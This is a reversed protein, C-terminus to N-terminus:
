LFQLSGITSLTTIYRLHLFHRFLFHIQWWVLAMLNQNHTESKRRGLGKGGSLVIFDTIENKMIKERGYMGRVCKTKNLFAEGIVCIIMIIGLGGWLM